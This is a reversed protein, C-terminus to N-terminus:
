VILGFAYAPIFYVPIEGIKEEGWFNQNIVFARAIKKTKILNVVSTPIKAREMKQNKVEVATAKGDLNAIFDVESDDYQRWFSIEEGSQFYSLYRRIIGFVMNELVPGNKVDTEGALFNRLGNDYFYVKFKDKFESGYEAKSYIIEIWYSYRLIDLLRKVTKADIGLENALNNIAIPCSVRKALIRIIKRLNDIQSESIKGLLDKELFAAELSPFFRKLQDQSYKVTAPYGGNLLYANMQSSLVATKEILLDRTRISFINNLAFTEIKVGRSWLFEVFSLSFLSFRLIRGAMSDGGSVLADSISGSLFFKLPTGQYSFKDYLYKVATTILPVKQFEDIFITPALSVAQELFGQPNEKALDLTEKDDFTFYRNNPQNPVLHRLITSKGVQRAGSILIGEKVPLWPKLTKEIQRQYFNSVTDM